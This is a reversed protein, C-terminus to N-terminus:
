TQPPLNSTSRKQWLWQQGIALCFTKRKEPSGLAVPNWPSQRIFTEKWQNETHGLRLLIDPYSSPISGVKDERLIRGIWELLTMYDTFTIPLVCDLKHQDRKDSNLFGMLHDDDGSAQKDIRRKASTYESREPTQAIGARIPNLDVYTMCQLLATDDLLAQSHFRGEWFRGKCQDERNAERAIRENLYGMFRSISM